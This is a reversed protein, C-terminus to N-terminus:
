GALRTPHRSELRLSWEFGRLRFSSTGLEPHFFVAEPNVSRHLVHQEHLIRLGNALHQFGLWLQHRAAMDRHVNRSQLWAFNKREALAGALTKYGSGQAEPVMVFCQNERDVGADRIVLVSQDAGPSSGVRYMIRLESDWLARQFPDPSDGRFPWVKVLYETQYEDVGTWSESFRTLSLTISSNTDLALYMRAQRCELVGKLLDELWSCLIEQSASLFKLAINRLTLLVWQRIM